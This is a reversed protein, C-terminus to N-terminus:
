LRGAARYVAMGLLEKVALSTMGLDNVDPMLDIAAAQWFGADPDHRPTFSLFDCPAAIADIDQHRFLALARPMHMASTVLLIRSIHRQKLIANVEVANQYTNASDHEQIIAAKPVGMLEIIEAMNQSLPPLGKLWALRGGSLIVIPAKGERYLQAGYLLRNATPGDPATTPQPPIAPQGGGSLVVIAQADPLPGDPLNRTELYRVLAAAFWQNSCVLLVVLALAVLARGLRPRARLMIIAIILVECVIGIPSLAPALLKSLFVFM